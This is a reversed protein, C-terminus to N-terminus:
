KQASFMSDFEKLLSLLDQDILIDSETEKILGLTRLFTLLPLFEVEAFMSVILNQLEASGDFSVQRKKAFVWLEYAYAFVEQPNQVYSMYELILKERKSIAISSWNRKFLKEATPNDFFSENAVLWNIFEKNPLDGEYYDGFLALKELQLRLMEYARMRLAKGLSENNVVLQLRHLNELGTMFYRRAFLENQSHDIPVMRESINLLLDDLNSNERTPQYFFTIIHAVEHHIDTHNYFNLGFSTEWYGDLNRNTFFHSNDNNLSFSVQYRKGFDGRALGTLFAIVKQKELETSNDFFLNENKEIVRLWFSAQAKIKEYKESIVSQLLEENPVTTEQEIAQNLVSWELFLNKLSTKSAQIDFGAGSSRIGITTQAVSPAAGFLLLGLSLVYRGGPKFSNEIM